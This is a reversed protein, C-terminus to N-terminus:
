PAQLLNHLMGLIGGKATSLTWGPSNDNAGGPGSRALIKSEDWAFLNKAEDWEFRLRM